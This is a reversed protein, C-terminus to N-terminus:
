YSGTKSLREEFLGREKEALDTTFKLNKRVVRTESSYEPNPIPLEANM